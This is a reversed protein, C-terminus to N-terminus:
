KLMRRLEKRITDAAMEEAMRAENKTLGFFPRGGERAYRALEANTKGRSSDSLERRRPKSSFFIRVFTGRAEGMIAALMQGTATLNSTAPSTEKSLRRRVRQRFKKYSESLGELSGKLGQGDRTRDRIVHPLDKALQRAALRSAQEIARALKLKTARITM